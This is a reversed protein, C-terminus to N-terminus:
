SHNSKAKLRMVAWLENVMETMEKWFTTGLCDVEFMQDVYDGLDVYELASTSISFRRPDVVPANLSETTTVMGINELDTITQSYDAIKQVKFTQFVKLYKPMTTCARKITMDTATSAEIMELFTSPSYECIPVVRNMLINNSGRDVFITSEYGIFVIYQKGWDLTVEEADKFMEEIISVDLTIERLNLSHYTIYRSAM